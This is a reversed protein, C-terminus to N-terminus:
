FKKESTVHSSAPGSTMFPSFRAYYRRPVLATVILAADREDYHEEEVQGVRRLSAAIDHRDPPIRLEIRGIDHGALNAMAEVLKDLGERTRTSTAVVREAGRALHALSARDGVMDVKNMVLITPKRAIGLQELIAETAMRHEVANPHSADVVHLLMTAVKAEELTAKFAEVLTPPLKRIFGVTDTIVIGQRNPLLFKRTTPDLTAFLKDEELVGAGTLANLLSSKGANTYGVLAAAPLPVETRQRRQTARVRRVHALERKLRDIHRRVMRRDVELQAEGAGGRLGGGGRQRELHTWARRLRPLSYEARALEVQLRAERTQARDAFIGLIVERRDIVALGTLREWNRQQSPSLDDDVVIVDAGVAVAAQHIQRVRGENLLHSATPVRVLAVERGLVPVGYTESLRVLEELHEEAEARSMLDRRIGVLYAGVPKTTTPLATEIVL